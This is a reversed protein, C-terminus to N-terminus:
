LSPSGPELGPVAVPGADDVQRPAVLHQLLAFGPMGYVALVAISTPAVLERIDDLSAVCPPPFNTRVQEWIADARRTIDARAADTLMGTLPSAHEDAQNNPTQM